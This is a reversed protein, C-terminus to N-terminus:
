LERACPSNHEGNRQETDKKNNENTFAHVDLIDSDCFPSVICTHDTHFEKLTHQSIQNQAASDLEVVELNKKASEREMTHSKRERFLIVLLIIIILVTCSLVTALVVAITTTQLNGCQTATNTPTLDASTNPTTKINTSTSTDATNVQPTATIRM